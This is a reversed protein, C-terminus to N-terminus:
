HPMTNEKRDLCIYLDKTNMKRDNLAEECICLTFDDRECHPIEVNSLVFAQELNSTLIVTGRNVDTSNIIVPKISVVQVEAPKAKPAEIVLNDNTITFAYNGADAGTVRLNSAYVGPASGAAVGAITWEDGELLGSSTPANQTQTSGNYTLQTATASVSAPRPTIDATTTKSGTTTLNYNNWDGGNTGDAKTLSTVDSVTVTKNTGANKTDFSGSGSIAL